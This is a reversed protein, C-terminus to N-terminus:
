PLPGVCAVSPVRSILQDALSYALTFALGHALIIAAGVAGVCDSYPALNSKMVAAAEMTAWHAIPKVTKAAAVVGIFGLVLASLAIPRECLEDMPQSFQAACALGFITASIAIMRLCDFAPKCADVSSKFKVSQTRGLRDWKKFHETQRYRMKAAREADDANERTAINEM